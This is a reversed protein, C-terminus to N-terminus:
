KTYKPRYIEIKQAREGKHRILVGAVINSVASLVCMFFM